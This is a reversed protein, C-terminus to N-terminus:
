VVTTAAAILRSGDRTCFRADGGYIGGCTPCRMTM